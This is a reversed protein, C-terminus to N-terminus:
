TAVWLCAPPSVLGVRYLWGVERRWSGRVDGDSTIGGSAALLQARTMPGKDRLAAIIRRQTPSLARLQRAHPFLRYRRPLIAGAESLKHVKARVDAVPLGLDEALDDVTLDGQHTAIHTLLPSKM